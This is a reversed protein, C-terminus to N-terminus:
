GGAGEIFYLHGAAQPPPNHAPPSPLGTICYTPAPRPTGDERGPAGQRVILRHSKTTRRMRDIVTTVMQDPRGFITPGHEFFRHSAATTLQKHVDTRGIVDMDVLHVNGFIMNMEEARKRWPERNALRHRTELALRGPRQKGLKGLKPSPEPAAGQPFFAVEHARDTICQRGVNNPTVDPAVAITSNNFVLTFPL